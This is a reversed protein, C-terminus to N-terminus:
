TTSTSEETILKDYFVGCYKKKNIKKIRQPTINSYYTQLSNIMVEDSDCFLPGTKFVGHHWQLIYM